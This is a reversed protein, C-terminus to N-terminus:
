TKFNTTIGFTNIPGSFHNSSRSYSFNFRKVRFSIGASFGVLGKRDEIIMEFRRRNNYGLLISANKHILFEAGLVFHKLIDSAINDNNLDFVTNGSTNEFGLDPPELHQFTLHWRLPMHALKNSVGILIEFPLSEHEGEYYPIVQYGLNKIM